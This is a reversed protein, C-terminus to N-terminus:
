NKLEGQIWKESICKTQGPTSDGLEDQVGLICQYYSLQGDTIKCVPQGYFDTVSECYSARAADSQLQKDRSFLGLVRRYLEDPDSTAFYQLECFAVYTDNIEAILLDSCDIGCSASILAVRESIEKVYESPKVEASYWFSEAHAMAGDIEHASLTMLQISGGLRSLYIRRMPPVKFFSPHKTEGM